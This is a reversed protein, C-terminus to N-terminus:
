VINLEGTKIKFFSSRRIGTKPQYRCLIPEIEILLEQGEEDSAESLLERMAELDALKKKFDLVPNILQKIQSVYSAKKQANEHDDWFTPHGM